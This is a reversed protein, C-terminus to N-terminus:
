AAMEGRTRALLADRSAWLADAVPEPLGEAVLSIAEDVEHAEPYSRANAVAMASAGELVLRSTLRGVLAALQSSEKAYAEAERAASLKLARLEEMTRALKRAYRDRYGAMESLAKEATSWRVSVETAYEGLALQAESQAGEMEAHKAQLGDNETRLSEIEARYAESMRAYGSHAAALSAAHLEEAQELASAIARTHANNEEVRLAEVDLLKTELEGLRACERTAAECAWRLANMDQQLAEIERAHEDRLAAVEDAHDASQARAASEMSLRADDLQSQSESRARECEARLAASECAWGEMLQAREAAHAHWAATLEANVRTLEAVHVMLQDREARVAEVGSDNLRRQVEVHTARLAEELARIREVYESVAPAPAGAQNARLTNITERAEMLQRERALQHDKLWLIEQEKRTLADRLVTLRRSTGETRASVDELARASEREKKLKANEAALEDRQRLATALEREPVFTPKENHTDTASSSPQM